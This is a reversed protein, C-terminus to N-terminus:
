KEDPKFWRTRFFNRLYQFEFHRFGEDITAQKTSHVATKQKYLMFWQERHTQKQTFTTKCPSIKFGAKEKFKDMVPKM